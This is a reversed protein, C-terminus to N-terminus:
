GKVKRGEQLSGIDECQDGKEELIDAALLYM